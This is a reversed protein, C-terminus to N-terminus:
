APIAFIPGAVIGVVDQTLLDFGLQAIDVFGVWMAEPLADSEEMWVESQCTGRDVDWQRVKGAGPSPEVEGEVVDEDIRGLTRPAGGYADGGDKDHDKEHPHQLVHNEPRGKYEQPQGLCCRALHVHNERWSGNVKVGEEVNVRSYLLHGSGRGFEKGHGEPVAHVVGQRESCESPNEDHLWREVCARM